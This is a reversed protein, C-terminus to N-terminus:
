SLSSALWVDITAKSVKQGDSAFVDITHLGNDASLQWSFPAQTDTFCLSGNVYFSVEVADTSQVQVELPGFIRPAAAQIPLKKLLTRVPHGFLYTQYHDPATITVTPADPQLNGCVGSLYMIGTGPGYWDAFVDADYSLRFWGDEGWRTGWSNKLIWCSRSDDYGVLAVVHGGGHGGWRPTYVGGFYYFFDGNFHFCVALPGYTLLAQKISDVDHPVWGWETIKVTRNEWGPLSEFPADYPRHPDPFCGEDPVGTDILYDAADVISVYGAAVTGGPYFYLHAESLDPGYCSGAQYQMMTELIAVLAYAECTPAPSQDRIPTTYDVGEVDRWSFAPPFGGQSASSGTPVMSTMLFFLLLLCGLRRM